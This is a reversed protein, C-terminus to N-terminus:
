VPSVTPLTTKDTGQAEQFHYLDAARFARKATETVDGEFAKEFRADLVYAKVRLRTAPHNQFHDLFLIQIGKEYNIYPSTVAAEFALKRARNVDVDIPLFLDVVVMCDLNGANANAISQNIVISNPITVTNDDLTNIITTRINMKKVEGYHGDLAIRDGIQFPREAVLWLGGLINSLADKAAFGIVLTSSALFAWITNNDFLFSIIGVTFGIWLFVNLVPYISLIRLRYRNYRESLLHFTWGLLRSIAWTFLFLMFITLVIGSTVVEKLHDLVATPEMDETLEQVSQATLSPAALLGTLLVLLSKRHRRM